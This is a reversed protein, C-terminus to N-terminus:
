ESISLWLFSIELQINSFLWSSVWLCLMKQLFFPLNVCLFSFLCKFFGLSIDRLFPFLCYNKWVVQCRKFNVQLKEYKLIFIAHLDVLRRKQFNLYEWSPKPTVIPVDFHIVKILNSGEKRRPFHGGNLFLPKPQPFCSM